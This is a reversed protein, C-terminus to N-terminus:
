KAGGVQEQLTRQIIVKQDSTLDPHEEIGKMLVPYYDRREEEELDTIYDLIEQYSMEDIAVEEPAEGEAGEAEEVTPAPQPVEEPLKVGERRLLEIEWGQEEWFKIIRDDSLGRAKLAKFVDVKKGAELIRGPAREVESSKGSVKKERAPPSPSPLPPTPKEISRPPPIKPVGVVQTPATVMPKKLEPKVTIVRRATNMGAVNSVILIVTYDGPGTFIHNVEKDTSTTNDGFDWHRAEVLGISQDVFRVLLPAPGEYKDARFAAAPREVAVAHIPKELMHPVPAVEAPAPAPAETPVPAVVEIPVEPPLEGLIDVKGEALLGRACKICLRDKAGSAKRVVQIFNGLDIKKGEEDVMFEPKFERCEPCVNFVPRAKVLQRRRKEIGKDYDERTIVGIRVLIQGAVPNSEVEWQGRLGLRQASAEFGTMLEPVNRDGNVIVGLMEAAVKDGCGGQEKPAARRSLIYAFDDIGFIYAMAGMQVDNFECLIPLVQQIRKSSDIAALELMLRYNGSLMMQARKFAFSSSLIQALAEHNTLIAEFRQVEDPRNSVFDLYGEVDHKPNPPRKPDTYKNVM